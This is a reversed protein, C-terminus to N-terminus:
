AAGRPRGFLSEIPFDKHVPELDDFWNGEASYEFFGDLLSVKATATLGLWKGELRVGKAESFLGANGEFSTEGSVEASLVSPDVLNLEVSPKVTATVTGALTGSEYEWAREDAWMRLVLNSHLKCVMGATFFAGASLWRQVVGPLKIGYVLVKLECEFLPDAAVDFETKCFARHSKGDEEWGQKIALKAATKKDRVKEVHGKTDALNKFVNTFPMEIEDSEFEIEVEDGAVALVTFERAGGECAGCTIRNKGFPFHMPLSREPPRAVPLARALSGGLQTYTEGPTAVEWEVHRGCGGQMTATGTMGESQDAFTRAVSVGALKGKLGVSAESVVYLLGQADPKRGQQDAIQASVIRCPVPPKEKPPLDVLQNMAAAGVPGCATCASTAPSAPLQALASRLQAGNSM